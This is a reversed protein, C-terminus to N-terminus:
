HSATKKQQLLDYFHVKLDNFIVDHSELKHGKNPFGMFWSGIGAAVQANYNKQAQSYPITPDLKGNYYANPPDGANIYKEFAPSVAGSLSATGRISIKKINYGDFFSDGAAVDNLCEGSQLATIAGASVGMEFIKLRKIGYLSANQRLYDILNYTNLIAQLQEKTDFEGISLKYEASITVYGLKVFDTCWSTVEDITGGGAHYVIIVPRKKETDGSPQFLKFDYGKQYQGSTVTWSDFIPDIYRVPETPAQSIAKMSLFAFLTTIIILKKM